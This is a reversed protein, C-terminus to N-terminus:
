AKVWHDPVNCRIRGKVIDRVTSKAVGGPIDDLKDAIQQYSLGWEHMQLILEVDRDSLKARHHTEGVRQGAQTVAVWKARKNM